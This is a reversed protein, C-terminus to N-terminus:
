KYNVKVWLGVLKSFVEILARSWSFKKWPNTM